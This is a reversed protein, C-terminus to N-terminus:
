QGLVIIKNAKSTLESNTTKVSIRYLYVGPQVKKGTSDKLDWTLNDSNSQNITFIIRGSIDFIDVKTELIVQPRDHEIMFTTANRVPNPYNYVQFIEPTLGPVVEFDLTSTTSNNLLDWCHFTLTHKGAAMLPLKMRVVGQQYSDTEAEFYDNLTYSTVPDDDIVLRLDHGIGSGVTNIGNTDSLRAVFMPTENVKGGSTFNPSNMYMTVIPGETENQYNITSGGVIFNEYYGQAERDTLSDSAYYNIRGKEYNYRIDRPIMATFTFTGDTVRAKGSYLINPRDEYTISGDQHNNLTTIKQMKDYMAIELTGNFDTVKNGNDDAIYGQFRNVSLARLTDTAAVEKDNLKETIIKYNTPYTLRLAPDGFLMYSLKNIETGTQNKSKAVADGLRPFNGNNKEFIDLTFFRNLRENQSAYVTRAASFLAIGGGTPNLLVYEGASINKVDFLVFDCTAAIWIPLKTNYMNKVDEALLVRENTWGNESAHGTFNLMFLGSSILNHLKTTALPYSEGSASIEQLYADLYIKNFQYGQNNPKLSQAIADAQRMHLAGDGDDALFCLQNKWNGRIQNNMYFITKNVVDDAQQTTAVPFRGIGIDLLNSPPYLGEKDDLFGFYDDTVYSKVIDLSMDAQYTIVLNDGSNNIIGRNDYSGRGFLLLYKPMLSQDGAALARDYFMKMVWRYASADPTGSSFENYVQETTFVHVRLNDKQRHANALKEAQSIFNPHTIIVMEAAPLGHINQNPVTVASAPELTFSAKSTPDLAVYQKLSEGSDVFELVDGTRTATIRKVNAPDTVDWVQVNAAAGSIQFRKYGSTNVNDANRFFLVSGIMVLKRRANVELYNLYGRSSLTPKSYSLTFEVKPTSNANPFTLTVNADKGIEYNDSSKRLVTLSKEQAGNLKLEFTSNESSIAAVDVRAKIDASTINPFDFNFDYSTTNEFSEGYFVKGTKALNLKEVEHVQYDTFENVNVIENGSPPTITVDQIKKGEGADSTIFYFGENAYHNLTHTFMSKTQDYTWKVIGQGYFLIYDGANFVGDNGKEMWVAIEPLDDPKSKTFDQDLLAGGYGFVRVNAPSIGMSNLAEYTLKYIGTEKVKVKVFKGSALASSPVYTHKTLSSIKAPMRKKIVQLDFSSLKLVKNERMVFPLIQINFYTIGKEYTNFTTIQIEDPISKGAVLREEDATLAIFVPNEASVEFGANEDAALRESFYPLDTDSPYQADAFSIVQKSYKNTSWTEIGTWHIERKSNQPNQAAASLIFCVVVAIIILLKLRM